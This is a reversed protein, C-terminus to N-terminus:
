AEETDGPHHEILVDESYLAMELWTGSGDIETRRATPTEFWAWESGCRALFPAMDRCGTDRLVDVDSPPEHEVDFVRRLLHPHYWGDNRGTDSAIRWAGDASMGRDITGAVGDLVRVWVRTGVAFRPAPQATDPVPAALPVDEAPPTRWSDILDMVDRRYVTLNTIDLRCIQERWDGPLRVARELAMRANHLDHSDADMVGQMRHLEHEATRARELADSLQWKLETVRARHREAARIMRDRGTEAKEARERAEDRERYLAVHTRMMAEQLAATDMDSM